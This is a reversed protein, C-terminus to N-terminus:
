FQQGEFLFLNFCGVNWCLGVGKMLHIGTPKKEKFNQLANKKLALEINRINKYFKLNFLSFYKLRLLM